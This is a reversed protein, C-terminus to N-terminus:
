NATTVELSLISCAQIILLRQGISTGRAAYISFNDKNQTSFSETRTEQIDEKQSKRPLWKGLQGAGKPRGKGCLIVVVVTM